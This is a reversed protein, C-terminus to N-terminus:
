YIRGKEFPYKKNFYIEKAEQISNVKYIFLPKFVFIGEESKLIFSNQIGRKIEYFFVVKKNLYPKFHKIKWGKEYVYVVPLTLKFNISKNKDTINSGNEFVWLKGNPHFYSRLDYPTLPSFTYKPLKIVLFSVLGILIVVIILEILSFAVRSM